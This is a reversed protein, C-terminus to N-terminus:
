FGMEYVRDTNDTHDSAGTYDTASTTDSRSPPPSGHRADRRSSRPLSHSVRSCYRRRWFNPLDRATVGYLFSSMVSTLALAAAIGIGVGIVSLGM